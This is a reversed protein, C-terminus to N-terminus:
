GLLSLVTQQSANAQALMATGAQLLIQNKALKASEAAFDADQIRSKSAETNTVINGLNNVTHDLRNQIAGLKAREDNVQQIANDIIELASNASSVALVDVTSVTKGTSANGSNDDLIIATGQGAQPSFTATSSGDSEFRSLDILGGKANTFTIKTLGGALTKAATIDTIGADSLAKNVEALLDDGQATGTTTSTKRITATAVGDSIRFSVNDNASFTMDAVTPDSLGAATAAASTAYVNDDLRVANGQGASPSFLITEAGASSFQDLEIKSGDTDTLIVQLSNNPDLSATLNTLNAQAAIALNIDNVAQAASGGSVATTIQATQNTGDSVRFSFTGNGSFGLTAKTSTATQTSYIATGTQNLDIQSSAVAAGATDNLTFTGASATRGPDTAIDDGIAAGTNWSSAETADYTADEGAYTAAATDNIKVVIDGDGGTKKININSGNQVIEYNFNAATGVTGSDANGLSGLGAASVGGAIGAATAFAAANGNIEDILYQGATGNAIKEGSILFLAGDIEVEYDSTTSSFNMDIETTDGAGADAVTFQNTGDVLVAETGGGTTRINGQTGAARGDLSQFQTINVAKGADNHFIAFEGAALGAVDFSTTAADWNASESGSDAAIYVEYGTGLAAELKTQIAADNDTIEINVQAGNVKFSYNGRTADATNALSFRVGASSAETGQATTSNVVSSVDNLYVSDGGGSIVDFQASGNGTSSFGGVNITNGELHRLEIAGNKVDAQVNTVGASALNNNVATALNRLDASMTASQLTGTVSVNQVQFTYTDPGSFSLRGVTEVAVTGSASASTTALSSNILSLGGIGSTSMDSLSFSVTEAGNMGVQIQAGQFSGDIIKQNNFASQSAVRDIESKLQQVEADLAARDQSNNVSNSSQIALERMRQLMATIEEMAGEASQALSIGDNANRIAMSLGRVQSEMRSAISLGAADDAASNIRSGSSLREMAQNMEQNTKSVNYQAQISAVNTNVVLAM